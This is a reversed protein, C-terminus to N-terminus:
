VDKKRELLKEIWQDFSAAGYSGPLDALETLRYLVEEATVTLHSLDDKRCFDEFRREKRIDENLVAEDYWTSRIGASEWDIIYIKDTKNEIWINGEQLDGHSLTLEVSGEENEMRTFLRECVDELASANITKGAEKLQKKLEEAEKSLRKAYAKASVLEKTDKGYDQWLALADKKLRDHNKKRRALPAGDIIRETYGFASDEIVPLIFGADQHEKRFAIERLLCRNSFGAKVIVSVTKNEFDFIRYKRNCPYILRDETVHAAVRIKKQSLHGRSKLCSRVYLWVPVKKYWACRLDFETYLYDRVAKSPNKRIIANLKPYVYLDCAEGDTGFFAALTKENITYFDERKLMYSIKM